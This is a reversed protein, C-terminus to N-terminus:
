RHINFRISRITSRQITITGLHDGSGHLGEDDLRDLQVTLRSTATQVSVDKAQRRPKERNAPSFEIATVNVQPFKLEGHETQATFQGDALALTKITVRDRNVFQVADSGAAMARDSAPGAVAEEGGTVRIFRIEANPSVNLLIFKGAAPTAAETSLLEQGNASVTLPQGDRCVIRLTGSSKLGDPSGHSEESSGRDTRYKLELDDPGVDLRMYRRPNEARDALLTVGFKPARLDSSSYGIEITLNRTQDVAATLQNPDTGACSLRGDHITWEGRTQQWPGLGGRRFDCDAISNAGRGVYIGSVMLRPLNLSGIGDAEWAVSQTDIGKLRGVIVDGNTLTAADRGTTPSRTALTIQDLRDRRVKVDGAFQEGTMTLWGDAGISRVSGVLRDGKGTVVVDASGAPTASPGGAAPGSSRVDAPMAAAWAALSASLFCVGVRLALTM